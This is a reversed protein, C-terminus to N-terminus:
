VYTVKPLEKGKKLDIVTLNPSQMLAVLPMKLGFLHQPYSTILKFIDKLEMKEEHHLKKILLPLAADMDTSAVVEVIGKKIGEVLAEADARLTNTPYFFCPDTGCTVAFGEKRAQDILVLSEKLTIPFFHRRGAGESALMKLEQTIIDIESDPGKTHITFPSEIINVINPVIFQGALELVEGTKDEDEPLYGVGMVKGNILLINQITLSENKPDWLRANTLILKKM